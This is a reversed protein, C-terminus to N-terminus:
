VVAKCYLERYRDLGEVPKVYVIGYNISDHVVTQEPVYGSRNRVTFVAQIGAEVQRGRFGEGGQTPEFKAPENVLWNAKTVVPQGSADQTATASKVTIRDRMQGVHFGKSPRGSM